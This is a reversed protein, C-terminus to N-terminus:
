PQLGRMIETVVETSNLSEAIAPEPEAPEVSRVWDILQDLTWDQKGYIHENFVHAIACCVNDSVAYIGTRSCGCPLNCQNTMWVFEPHIEIWDYEEAQHDIGIAVEAM